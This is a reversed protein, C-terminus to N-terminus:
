IILNEQKLWEMILKGVPTMKATYSSDLWVFSDIENSPKLNGKFDSQYCKIQVDIGSDKGHAQAQFSVLYKLTEPILDITLEEKLERLLAQEDSEGTERKGGPVSFMNLDKKPIVNLWKRDKIYIWGLKDIVQSM